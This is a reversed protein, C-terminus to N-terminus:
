ICPTEYTETEIEAETEPKEQRTETQPINCRNMLFTSISEFMM